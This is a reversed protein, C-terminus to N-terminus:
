FPSAHAVRAIDLLVGVGLVVLMKAVYWGSLEFASVALMAAPVSLVVLPLICALASRLLQRNEPQASM